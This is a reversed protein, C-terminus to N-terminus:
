PSREQVPSGASMGKSPSLLEKVLRSLKRSTSWPCHGVDSNIRGGGPSVKYQM